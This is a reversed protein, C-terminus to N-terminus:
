VARWERAAALFARLLPHLQRTASSGVQPQFETAFFFPHAPLEIAEVGADEARAAIVAGAAAVDDEHGKALGYGCFHVGVFPESGCISAFRTGSVPVVLRQEGDLRCALPAIVPNHAEPDIEAHVADVGLRRVLVLCAYQFGSCTGLFPTGADICHEIAAFVASDDRYPGGSVIWLGDAGALDRAAESDTSVWRAEVDAPFLALAADVERHPLKREDRDGVVDIRPV